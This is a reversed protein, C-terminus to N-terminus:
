AAAVTQALRVERLERVPWGRTVRPGWEVGRLRRFRFRGTAVVLGDVQQFREACFPEPRGRLFVEAVTELDDERCRECTPLELNHICCM